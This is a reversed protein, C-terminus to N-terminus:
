LIPGCIENNIKTIEELEKEDRVMNAFLIYYIIFLITELIGIILHIISVYTLKMAFSFYVEHFVKYVDRQIFECNTLQFISENEGIKGEFIYSINLYELVDNLINKYNSHKNKFDTYIEESKKLDRNVINQYATIFINYGTFYPILDNIYNNNNIQKSEETEYRSRIKEEQLWEDILFCHKGEEKKNLLESFNIYTYGKPCKDISATFVDSYNLYNLILSDNVSADTYKRMEAFFDNLEPTQTRILNYLDNNYFKKESNIITKYNDFLENFTDYSNNINLSLNNYNNIIKFISYKDLSIEGNGKLCKDILINSLNHYIFTNNENTTVNKNIYSIIGSILDKTYSGIFGFLFSIILTLLMFIYFLIWAYKIHIKIEKYIYLIMILIGFLSLVLSLWFLVKRLITFIKLIKGIKGYLNNNFTHNILNYYKITENFFESANQEKEKLEQSNRGEKIEEYYQSIRKKLKLYSDLQQYKKYYFSNENDTGSKYKNIISPIKKKSNPIPSDLIDNNEKNAKLSNFTQQLDDNNLNANLELFSIIKETSEAIINTIKNVGIWSASKQYEDGEMLHDKIKYTGCVVNYSGQIADNNKIYAIFSLISIGSCFIIIVILIWKQKTEINRPVFCFYKCIYCILFFFFLLFIFVLFILFVIYKPYKFIYKNTIETMNNSFNFAKELEISSSNDISNYNNLLDKFLDDVYEKARENTQFIDSNSYTKNNKYFDNFEKSTFNCANDILSDSKNLEVESNFNLNSNENCTVSNEFFINFINENKRIEVDKSYIIVFFLIIRLKYILNKIM